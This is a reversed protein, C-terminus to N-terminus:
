YQADCDQCRREAIRNTNGRTAQVTHVGIRSWMETSDTWGWKPPALWLYEPLSICGVRHALGTASILISEPGPRPGLYEPPESAKWQM